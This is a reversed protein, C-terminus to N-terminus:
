RAATADLAARRIDRERSTFVLDSDALDAGKPATFADRAGAGDRGDLGVSWFRWGDGDRAYRLPAGDPSFPDAFDEAVLLPREGSALEDLTEPYVGGHADRWLRLAIAIRAARLELRLTPEVAAAVIAHRLYAAAIASGVPDRTWPTRKKLRCWDPLGAVLGDPTYPNEANAILRSFLADLHARTAEETGGLRRVVWGGFGHLGRPTEGGAAAALNEGGEGTYIAHVAALISVRDERLAEACNVINSEACRLRDVAAQAADVPLQGGSDACAMLTERCLLSVCQLAATRGLLGAGRCLPGALVNRATDCCVVCASSWPGEAQSQYCTQVVAEPFRGVLEAHRAAGDPCPAFGTPGVNWLLDALGRWPWGDGDADREGPRFWRANIAAREEASLAAVGGAQFVRYARVPANTAPPLAALLASEEEPSILDVSDDGDVWDAGPAPDHVGDPRVELRVGPAPAPWATRDTARLGFFRAVFLLALAALAIRLIRKRRSPRAARDHQPSRRRGFM